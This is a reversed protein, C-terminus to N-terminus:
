VVGARAADDDPYQSRQQQFRRGYELNTYGTECEVCHSM